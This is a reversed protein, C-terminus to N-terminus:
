ATVPKQTKRAVDGDADVIVTPQDGDTAVGAREAFANADDKRILAQIENDFDDFAFWDHAVSCDPM